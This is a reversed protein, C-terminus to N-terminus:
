APVDAYQLLGRTVGHFQAAVARWSLGSALVRSEDAMATALAPETLV